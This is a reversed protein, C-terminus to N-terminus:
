FFEHFPDVAPAPPEPAPTPESILPENDPQPVDGGIAPAEFEQFQLDQKKRTTKKVVAPKVAEYWEDASPPADTSEIAGSQATDNEAPFNAMNYGRVIELDFLESKPEAGPNEDHWIEMYQRFRRYHKDADTIEVIKWGPGQMVKKPDGDTRTQANLHIIGMRDIPMSPNFTEWLVKYAALQCSYYDYVGGTKVDLLWREGNLIGVRDLTGGFGLESHAYGNEISEWQPTFRAIFETYRRFMKYDRLSLREVYQSVDIRGRKDYVETMEHIISGVEMREAMYTNAEEGTKQLWDYFAKSKPAMNLITTASPVWLLRKDNCEYFRSDLFTVRKSELNIFQKYM